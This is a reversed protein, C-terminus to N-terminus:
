KFVTDVPVIRVDESSLDLRMAGIVKDEALLEAPKESDYAMATFEDSLLQRRLGDADGTIMVVHLREGSFHERIARNVDDVTLKKLRERMFTAYDGTGYWQADLHHGLNNDQGDTLLFVNKMLYERTSSFQGETLGDRVLKRLEHLAVKLAFVGQEPPVPRIWVEFIQARRAHNASPFTRFMGGPFAEIYAYDGYNMGRIERIRKYLHSMSSRHEGLWTRALYLPVYDEHSRTVEIPHGFSIATARTEKEIVDISLGNAGRGVPAPGAIEASGAPLEALREHLREIFANPVDGSLGVRLNAWTYQERLFTRVDDLGVADLASTHGVTPHGYPTGEFITAQLIEKGLEEDNNAILDLRLENKQDARNREFDEARLGPNLLMDLAISGFRDLNDRHISGTFVTMERDVQHSLSGAIPYLLKQIEALELVDSGANSVMKATLEALGERGEPDDASGTLFMLKMVIQPSKSKQVLFRSAGLDDSTATPAAEVSPPTTIGEDLAGYSITTVAMRDDTFYERAAAQLDAPALSGYLKFLQNMTGFERDFRVYGALAGAIADTSDLGAATAYRLYSKAEDLRTADVATVRAAACAGLIADRVYVVDAPDKVRALINILSPDEDAAPLGGLLDVKQEEQVLRRYLDSTQGFTLDLLLEMAASDTATTSFAPGHFAVALLPATDSAWEHHTYSPGKPPPEAPIAASYSGREWMSWYKEVLAITPEPEVDGVVMVTTNEPRYWRDFFVKSYEYQNPMDEIDAIFGMTTHKYTHTTYAADRQVEFLKRIPNAVNKNYEGLVARAETQFPALPYSLNMFRDAEIELMKELDEKAFTMHYNTYDDTTYANSSAGARTVIEGYKEPPYKETGRFMMHEFFHAFGTKGEEIENRSGTKVPIQLSVLNPFGTPVVIIKLGNDLTKETAAYPLIDDAMISTSMLLWLFTALLARTM